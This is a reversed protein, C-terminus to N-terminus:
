NMGIGVIVIHIYKLNFIENLRKFCVPFFEFVFNEFVLRTTMGKVPHIGGDSLLDSQLNMKEQCFVKMRWFGEFGQIVQM